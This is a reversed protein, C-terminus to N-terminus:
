EVKYRPGLQVSPPTPKQRGAIFKRYWALPSVDRGGEHTIPPMVYLPNSAAWYELCVALDIRQGSAPRDDRIDNNVGYKKYKSLQSCLKPCRSRVIRLSPLLRRDEHMWAQLAMIRGGVDPSGASFRFEGGTLMIGVSEFARRYNEEITMSMGPAKQRGCRMDIIARNFGRRGISESVKQMALKALQTADHRDPTLEDFVVFTRGLGIHIPPIAGFLLGPSTSGPDLILEATWDNPPIGNRRRLIESVEDPDNDLVAQHRFEDFLPYMKLLDTIYEGLDRARREEDSSFMGLAESRKEESITKNASLSIVIERVLPNPDNAQAEALDSIKSLAENNVNPWSSWFLIGRRDFLRARWEPYHAANDISEDIWIVDVPDGAKPDAKSSYAFIEALEEGTQPDIITVKKFERNKKNEWDWSNPKIYRKPILPPAQRAEEERDKDEDTWPQFARYQGTTKDKIIRFLDNRFLVRHITEGIHRLDFGIVWMRLPRGKQWPKRLDLKTGDNLTIPIDCAMAAFKVAAITTKGSRNGGRCLFERAWLKFFPEQHEMPRFLNLAMNKRAALEILSKAELSTAKRMISMKQRM